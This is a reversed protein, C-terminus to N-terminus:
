YKGVAPFLLLLNMGKELTSTNLSICVGEDLIQVQIVTYMELTIVAIGCVEM